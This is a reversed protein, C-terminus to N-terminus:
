LSCRTGSLDGRAVRDRLLGAALDEDRAHTNTRAHTHRGDEDVLLLSMGLRREKTILYNSKLHM